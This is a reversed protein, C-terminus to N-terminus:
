KTHTSSTDISSRHCAIRLYFMAVTNQPAVVMEEADVAGFCVTREETIDNNDNDGDDNTM